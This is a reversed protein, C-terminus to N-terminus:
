ADPCECGDSGAILCPGQRMVRSRCVVPTAYMVAAFVGEAGCGACADPEGGDQVGLTLKYCDDCQWMPMDQHTIQLHYVPEDDNRGYSVHVPQGAHMPDEAVHGIGDRHAQIEARADELEAHLDSLRDEGLALTLPNTM